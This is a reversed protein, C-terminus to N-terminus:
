EKHSQTQKPNHKRWKHNKNLIGGLKKWHDVDEDKDDEKVADRLKLMNEYNDIRYSYSTFFADKNLQGSKIMMFALEFLGLYDYLALMFEHEKEKAPPEEMELPQPHLKKWYLEGLEEPTKHVNEERLVTHVAWRKETGFMERLRLQNEMQKAATTKGLSVCVVIASLIAGIIGSICYLLIQCM